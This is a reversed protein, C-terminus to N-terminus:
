AFDQPTGRFTFSITYNQGVGSNRSVSTIYGQSLCAKAPGASGTTANVEGSANEILLQVRQKNLYAEEYPFESGALPVMSTVSITRFAPGASIGAWGKRIDMVDSDVRQLATQITVAEAVLRGDIYLYANNYLAM